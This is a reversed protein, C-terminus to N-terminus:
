EMKVGKWEKVVAKLASLMSDRIAYEEITKYDKPNLKSRREDLFAILETKSIYEDKM